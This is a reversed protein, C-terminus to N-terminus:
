GYSFGLVLHRDGDDALVDVEPCGVLAEVLGQGVAPDCFSAAHFEM